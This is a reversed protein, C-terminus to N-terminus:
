SNDRLKEIIRKLWKVRRLPETLLTYYNNVNAYSFRRGGSYRKRIIIMERVFNHVGEATKTDEHFRYSALTYPLYQIDKISTIRIFLDLDMAFHLNEDLFGIKNFVERKFFTSNQTIGLAHNLLYEYSYYRSKVVKILKSDENIFEQDGVVAIEHPNKNFYAAVSQIAGRVLRDDSNIWGLIDGTAMKFGKNLAHSQGEDKESIWKLHPYKRLIEITGDTSGGDIIIHEFNPYEQNLVSLINEEIYEAQNLSPTIITFKLNM